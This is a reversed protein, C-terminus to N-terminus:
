MRKAFFLMDDGDAYYNAVAATQTYGYKLYFQRTLQYKPLSSTEIVLQRGEV